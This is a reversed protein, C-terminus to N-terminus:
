SVGSRLWSGHEFYWALLALRLMAGVVFASPVGYQGLGAVHSLFYALPVEVLWLSGLTSVMPFVTSGVSNFSNVLFYALTLGFYGIALIRLWNSALDVFEPDSNIFSTIQTPLTVFLIAFTLSIAVTYFMGWKVSSRASGPQDVALNQAAIAGAAKGVPQSAQSAMAETRRMIAMAAVAGDGFPAVIAVVALPSLGRQLGTVSAPLGIRVIQKLLPLDIRYGSLNLRLRSTGVSVAYFNMAVALSRSVLMAMAIGSLAMEPAGFWGFIFTPSLIVHVVRNVVEARLPTMSDGSAQLAGALLVQYSMVATAVFQLRLYDSGQAVVADSLGVLKLLQGAFLIGLVVIVAQYVTNLSLAQLLIHNADATQKAGIARAIMSRSAAEIGVRVSLTVLVFLQVVGLGAVAQFGLRGVWILDVINAVM